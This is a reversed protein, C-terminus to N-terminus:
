VGGQSGHNFIVAILHSGSTKNGEFYAISASLKDFLGLGHSSASL